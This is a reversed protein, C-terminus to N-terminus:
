EAVVVPPRAFNEYKEAVKAEAAGGEHIYVRYSRVDELVKEGGLAVWDNRARLEGFVPGSTLREFKWHVIRGSRKSEAWFDIGNVKGFTFYWSRHHKHDDTEGPVDRVMPFARTVPEGTPGIVPHCFPKPLEPSFHYSTFLEGGILVDIKEGAQKVEVGRAGPEAPKDLFVATRRLTEGKKIQKEIWHLLIKGTEASNGWQCPTRQGAVDKLVVSGFGAPATIDVCLPVLTGDNEPPGVKLKVEAAGLPLAFLLAFTWRIAM